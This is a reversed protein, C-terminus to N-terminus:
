NQHSQPFQVDGGEGLKTFVAYDYWLEALNTLLHLNAHPDTECVHDRNNETKIREFVGRHRHLNSLRMLKTSTTKKTGLSQARNNEISEKSM